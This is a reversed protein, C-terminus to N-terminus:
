VALKQAGQVQCILSIDYQSVEHWALIRFVNTKFSLDSTPLHQLPFQEDTLCEYDDSRLSVIIESDIPVLFSDLEVCCLLESQDYVVHYSFFLKRKFDSM